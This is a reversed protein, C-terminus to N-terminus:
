KEAQNKESFLPTTPECPIKCSVDLKILYYIVPSFSKHLAVPLIHVHPHTCVMFQSDASKTALQCDEIGPYGQPVKVRYVHESHILIVIVIMIIIVIVIINTNMTITGIIAIIHVIIIYICM